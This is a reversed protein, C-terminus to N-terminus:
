CRGPRERLPFEAVTLELQPILEQYAGLALMAECRDELATARLGELRAVEAPRLRTPLSAWPTGHWLSLADDVADQRRRAVAGLLRQADAIWAAFQAADV